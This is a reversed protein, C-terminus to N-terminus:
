VAPLEWPKRYERALLASAEQDGIIEEKAADWRLKRGVRVAINALQCATSSQHGIEIGANPPTRTRVSRLFEQVHKTSMSSERDGGEDLPPDSMRKGEAYVRWGGRNIVLTGNEGYLAVGVDLGHLPQANGMRHEWLCTFDPYEFITVQTDPTETNERLIRKGGSSAVALPAQVNMFWHVVDILHIGWDVQKGGGYDWFWRWEYHFRNRNFPRKPAPGLWLDYDVHPPPPADDPSGLDKRHISRWAKCLCISGLRGSDVFAKAQIFHEASRQQTGVQMIRNFKHAARVMARGEHVNHSIPKEVYVDKGAMVAHIACIAHWHDPTAVIVADVDHHDLVKRFDRYAVPRRAGARAEVQKAAEESHQDDPDALAVGEAGVELMQQLVALGRGGCGILGIRIRESPATQALVAPALSTLGAAGAAAM